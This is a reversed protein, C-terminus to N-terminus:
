PVDAQVIRGQGRVTLPGDSAALFAAEGRRLELVAGGARLSVQGGLCVIVRPGRGPVMRKRNGAVRSVHLEFDDVPVYFAQTTLNAVEPAIRVPPAAVYDVAALVEAPDVHKVTLGARLVNDSNAMVEIATGSLYAHVGGAPIFMAEGHQLTVPNLLLSTVVGPDGPFHRALLLVNRDARTSPSGKELRHACAAVLDHVDQECPRTSPDLLSRFAARVGAVTPDGHLFEALTKAVASDLDSLIEAARRPARFGSLAEFPTLAFVLEPKHNRDRYNRQPSDLPIRAADEAAYGARARALDPHVQLSLPRDAAIIKLLYPLAVGFRAVVDEGLMGIPDASILTALDGDVGSGSAVSPGSLHAGFWLEALPRGDPERGLLHPIATTSGWAYHRPAGELRLM